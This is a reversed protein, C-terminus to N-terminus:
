SIHGRNDVDHGPLIISGNGDARKQRIEDRWLMLKDWGYCWLIRIVGTLPVAMLMGIVGGLIGGVLISLFIVLPNLGVRDGLIKPAIVINEIQQILMLAVLVQLVKLPGYALAVVTAPIAGIIPGFYPIIDAVGAFLGIIIAFPLGLLSMSLGVMVGVMAAVLLQGRIFGGLVRDLRRLVEQVESRGHKPVSGIVKGWIQRSDRLLYFAILPAILMALMLKALGLLGQALGGIQVRVAGEVRGIADDVAAQLGLPGAVRSYGDHAASVFDRVTRGYQPLNETMKAVEGLLGPLLFWVVGGTALVLLAYLILIAWVRSLGRASLGNVAPGLLYALLLALFFPVLAERMRYLLAAVGAAALGTGFLLGLAVKQRFGFKMM